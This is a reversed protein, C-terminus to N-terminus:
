NWWSGDPHHYPHAKKGSALVKVEGEITTVLPNDLGYYYVAMKYGAVKDSMLAALDGDWWDIGAESVSGVPYPYPTIYDGPEFISLRGKFSDESDKENKDFILYNIRVSILGADKLGLSQGESTITWSQSSSNWKIIEKGNKYIIPMLEHVLIYDNSDHFAGLEAGQGTFEIQNRSVANPVLYYYGKMEQGNIRESVEILVDKGAQLGNPERFLIDPCVLTQEAIGILDAGPMTVFACGNADAGFSTNTGSGVIDVITNKYNIVKFTYNSEVNANKWCATYDRFHAFLSTRDDESAPNYLGIGGYTKYPENGYYAESAPRNKNLRDMAGVILDPNLEWSEISFIQGSSISFLCSASLGNSAYATVTTTGEAVATVKGNEDVTAISENESVWRVSPETANSPSITAVLQASSNVILNLSSENLTISAVPVFEGYVPRITKGVYRYNRFLRFGHSNFFVYSAYASSDTNLLSSWYFGNTGFNRQGGDYFDGAAPLFISKDTYGSKNSTVIRGSVGTGEYDDTWTWTCNNILETWEEYTPMRWGDGLNICAADDEHDLVIKNDVTGYLSNINYKTQTNSSGNCWKYTSWTYDSKPQVEGWAFYNGYESPKDAGVNCTAWKVSLGLDVWVTEWESVKSDINKLVGFVSRKVTQAKDSVLTGITNDTEFVMTIGGRLEAPLLTIYYYRGVKFTGGDPAVLTVESKADIVEQVVPTGDSGFAVKVKGALPENNNGKFTVSKIDSRSVFFKIGGCINWFALSLSSSKAVTPFVDNSFNGEVGIQQDPIVTIISSGDCSNDESYPYVAWFDKGSGAMQVSGQLEVTEAIASNMSVFKSGGNSGAGYFVSVEENPSWWVSGDDLRFSRTGPALGERTATLVIEKEPFSVSEAFEKIDNCAVGLVATIMMLSYKLITKM